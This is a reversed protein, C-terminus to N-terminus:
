WPGESMFRPYLLLEKLFDFPPFTKPDVIPNALIMSGVPEGVFLNYTLTVRHGEIVQTIEHECDSYFAAWQITSSSAQSWDYDVEADHHRIILNGGKFPAPLCVVM